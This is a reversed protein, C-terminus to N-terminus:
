WQNILWLLLCFQLLYGIYIMVQDWRIRSHEKKEGEGGGKTGSKPDDSEQLSPLTPIHLQLSAGYFLFM